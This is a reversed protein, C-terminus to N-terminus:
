AHAFPCVPPASKLHGEFLEWGANRHVDTVSEKWQPRIDYDEEKAQHKFFLPCTPGSKVVPSLTRIVGLRQMKEPLSVEAPSPCAFMEYVVTGVQLSLLQEVFLNPEDHQGAVQVPCQGAAPRLVIAWPFRPSEAERGDEDFRAFDSLGLSVPFDSYKKFTDLVSRLPLPVRETLNSCMVHAFFNSENQGTKCGGMLLNGSPRGSRLCKLAVCPFLKANRIKGMGMMLWSAAGTIHCAPKAASSFRMIAHSAGSGFLGTYPTDSEVELRVLCTAGHPCLIKKKEMGGEARTDVEEQLIQTYDAAAIRKSLM